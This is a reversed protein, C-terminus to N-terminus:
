ERGIKIRPDLFSYSIDVLLNCLVFIVAMLCVYCQIVPYDRSFISFVAFRGVGPWAFINEVIVAGALMHGLSMGFATVVPLMANKLVHKGIILREKLGRARAYLVFERNLNELMSARLLRTYTAAHGLALTLSPLILHLYTGKGMVPLLDFKLAFFYMLLFGLWFSPMSAGIFALVRSFQDFLSDKYLAALIGTPVSILIMIVMSCATLQITAPLYSLIEALVPQKTVFSKGFDLHLVKWLWDFYQVYLPRDLGLEARVSAVAEDTPPIQSLRLYVEAPDSPVMHILVFTIVSVGLLVPILHIVRKVIYGKV